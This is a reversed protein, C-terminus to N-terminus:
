GQGTKPLCRSLGPRIHHVRHLPVLATTHEEPFCSDIDDHFDKLTPEGDNFSRFGQHWDYAAVHIGSAWRLLSRAHISAKSVAWDGHLLRSRANYLDAVHKNHQDFQDPDDMLLLASRRAITKSTEKPSSLLSEVAAAACSCQIAPDTAAYAFGLWQQSRVMREAFSGRDPTAYHYRFYTTVYHRLSTVEKDLTALSEFDSEHSVDLLMYIRTEIAMRSCEVFSDFAKASCGYWNVCIASEHDRTTGSQVLEVLPGNQNADGFLIYRYPKDSKNYWLLASSLSTSLPISTSRTETVLTLMLTLCVGIAEGNTLRSKASLPFDNVTNLVDGVDLASIPPPISMHRQIAIRFSAHDVLAPLEGHVARELSSNVIPDDLLNKFQEPDFM